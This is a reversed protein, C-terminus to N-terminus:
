VGGGADTLYLQRLAARAGRTARRSGTRRMFCGGEIPVHPLGHALAPLLTTPPPALHHHPPVPLHVARLTHETPPPTPMRGRGDPPAPPSPAHPPPTHPTGSQDVFGYGTTTPHRISSHTPLNSDSMLHHPLPRPPTTTPSIACLSSAATSCWTTHAACHPTGDPQLHTSATFPLHLPCCLFANVMTPCRGALQRPGANIANCRVACGHPLTRQTSCRLRRFTGNCALSFGDDQQHPYPAAFAVRYATHSGCRRCSTVWVVSSQQYPTRL